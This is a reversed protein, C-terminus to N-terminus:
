SKTQSSLDTRHPRRTVAGRVRIRLLGLWHFVTAVWDPYGRRKGEVKRALQDMQEKHLLDRQHTRAVSLANSPHDFM